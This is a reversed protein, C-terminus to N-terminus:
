PFGSKLDTDGCFAHLHYILSEPHSPVASYHCQFLYLSEAQPTQPM